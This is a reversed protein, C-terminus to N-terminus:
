EVDGEKLETLAKKIADKCAKFIIGYLFIGIILGVWVVVVAFEFFTLLTKM